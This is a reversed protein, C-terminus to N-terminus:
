KVGILGGVTIGEGPIFGKASLVKILPQTHSVEMDEANHYKYNEIRGLLKYKKEGYSHFPLIDVAQIKGVFRGLYDAYAKYDKESNNFGPIIPLRVRVEAGAEILKELNTLVISLNGKLVKEYKDPDMTKIDILFLDVYKLLNLLKEWRCCASTEIALHVNENKLRRALEETFDPFLMPEGGSITVGGGSNIFFLRDAVAEKVIEDLTLNRGVQERARSICVDVCKGCGVCKDRDFKLFTNDSKKEVYTAGTFCVDTCRACGICKEPEYNIEAFISQTEPNHCWPCRLNCGKLFTTTRIGPGDQLSYRQINTLLPNETNRDISAIAVM